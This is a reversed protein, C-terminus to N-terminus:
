SHPGNAPRSQFVTPRLWASLPCTDKAVAYQVIYVGRKQDATPRDQAAASLATLALLACVFLRQLM